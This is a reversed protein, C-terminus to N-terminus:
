LQRKRRTLGLGLLGAGMLALTVPEPVATGTGGGSGPGTGGTGGGGTTTQTLNFEAEFNGPASDVAGATIGTNYVNCASVATGSCEDKVYVFSYGAGKAFVGDTIMPEVLTGSTTDLTLTVNTSPDLHLYQITDAQLLNGSPNDGYTQAVPVKPGGMPSDAGAYQTTLTWSGSAIGSVTSTYNGSLICTTEGGSASCAGQGADFSGYTGAGFAGSSVPGLGYLTFNQSSPGLDLTVETAQAAGAALAAAVIALIAPSAKM